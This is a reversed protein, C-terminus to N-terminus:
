EEDGKDGSATEKLTLRMTMYQLEIEVRKVLCKRVGQYSKEGDHVVLEVVDGEWIPLYVTQLEWEVLETSQENLRQKAMEHARQPTKPAMEKASEFSVVSYGRKATSRAHSSSLRAEGYITRQESKEGSKDTYKHEIAVVNPLELWDSSRSLTGYMSVGREDELDIRFKPSKNGPNVRRSVVIHGYPDVDIRNHSMSALAFLCELRSRGAQMIQATTARVDEALSDDVEVHADSPKDLVGLVKRMSHMGSGLLVGKLCDLASAGKAIAWPQTLRDESLGKLMSHLELEYCWMGGELQADDNTVIYTGLVNRYNLDPIEDIIRIFSGRVWGEGYVKLKGSTRTDTYYAAEISSGSPDVGELEGWVDDLNTQSVMQYLVRHRHTQDRWDIAM